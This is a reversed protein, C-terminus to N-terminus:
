MPCVINGLKQTKLIVNRCPIELKCWQILRSVKALEIRMVPFFNTTLDVFLVNYHDGIVDVYIYLWIFHPLM